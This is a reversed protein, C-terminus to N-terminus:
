PPSTPGSEDHASLARVKDQPRAAALYLAGTGVALVTVLPAAWVQYWPAGPAALIARPWAINVFEFAPWAVALVTVVLGRRAVPVQGGGPGAGLQARLHASAILLFVLYIVASGFTILSGIATARLGLLLGACSVVVVAAIAGGPAQRSNTRRLLRSAPLVDDRAMSYLTRATLGQAALGCAFFAILVVASFPKASWTGFASVVATGVPNRDRGTVVRAPRPHALSVAIANMIVLTGVSLLAWWLARPVNRSAGHTEEAVAVCADFGIFVWGAVALVALFAGVTFGGEAGRAGLTEGLLSFDQGRFVLLLSLGVGLVAVLEAAVGCNLLWRLMGIGLLNAVACAVVFLAAVAVTTEPTPAWGALALMWPAALYAITTNSVTYACVALWGTFWAYRRRRARLM